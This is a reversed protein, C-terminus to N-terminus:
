DRTLIPHHAVKLSNGGKIYFLEMAVKLQPDDLCENCDYLSHKSKSEPSLDNWCEISFVKMLTQKDASTRKCKSLCSMDEVIKKFSKKFKEYEFAFNDENGTFITQLLKFKAMYVRSCFENRHEGNEKQLPVYGKVDDKNTATLIKYM